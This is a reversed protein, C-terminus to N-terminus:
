TFAQTSARQVAVRFWRTTASRDPVEAGVFWQRYSGAMSQNADVYMRAVVAEYLDLFTAAGVEDSVQRSSETGSPEWVLIVFTQLRGHFGVAEVTRDHIDFQDHAPYVALHRNGDGVLEEPFWSEYRHVNEPDVLLTPVNDTLDEILADCTVSFTSM